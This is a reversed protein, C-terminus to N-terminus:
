EGRNKRIVKAQFGGITAAGDTYMWDEVEADSLVVPDRYKMSKIIGPTNSLWGHITSGEIGSVSVWMHEAKEDAVFKKKVAFDQKPKRNAYASLFEPWRQRAEAAAADLEPSASVRVTRDPTGQRFVDAARRNRFLPIQSFDYGVMAADPLRILGLVDPQLLEAVLQGILSHIKERDLPGADGILDVSLWAAHQQMALKAGADSIQDAAKAIDKIYTGDVSLVAFRLPGLLVGFSSVPANRLGAVRPPQPAGFFAAEAAHQIGAQDIARYKRLLLAISVLEKSATSM